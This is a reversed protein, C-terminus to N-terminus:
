KSLFKYTVHECDCSDNDFFITDFGSTYGTFNYFGDGDEDISIMSIGEQSKRYVCIENEQSIIFNIDVKEPYITQLINSLTDIFSQFTRKQANSFSQNRFVGVAFNSLYDERNYSTTLAVPIRDSMKCYDQEFLITEVLSNNCFQSGFNQSLAPSNKSQNINIYKM